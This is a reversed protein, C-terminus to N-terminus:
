YTNHASRAMSHIVMAIGEEFTKATDWHDPGIFAYKKDGSPMKGIVCDCNVDGDDEFIEVTFCDTEGIYDLYGWGIKAIKKTIGKINWSWNPDDNREKAVANKITNKFNRLDKM